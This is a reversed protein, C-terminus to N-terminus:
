DVCLCLGVMHEESNIHAPPGPRPFCKDKVKLNCKNGERKIRNFQEKAEASLWGEGGHVSQIL